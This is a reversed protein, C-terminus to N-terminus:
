PKNVWFGVGPTLTKSTATFDLYGKSTIYDTLATGGQAELSPAYFYWKLQPNDWAWLSTLNLAVVGASPPVISLGANFARPTLPNGVSILNWGPKLAAPKGDQFENGNLPVASSLVKTFGQNANVWFGEGAHIASLVVYGKGTAYSLLSPADMSPAYFQWRATSTDWKWVTAVLAPNGFLSAVDLSQDLGNVLLNWGPAVVLSIDQLSLAVSISQMVQAAAAYSANGPQNAAISCIGTAVGSVTSGAVTCIGPTVSTFTVTLGSSATASVTSMGGVRLTAPNFSIVGISQSYSGYYGGLYGEAALTMKAQPLAFLLIANALVGLLIMIRSKLLKYKM